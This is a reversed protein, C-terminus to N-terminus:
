RRGVRRPQALGEVAAQSSQRAEEALVEPPEADGYRAQLYAASLAGVPAQAAPAAEALTDGYASVTQGRRRALGRERANLLLLRYAQRIRHRPDALDLAEAFLERRRRRGLGDFLGRWRELLLEKSWVFEREESATSTYRPRSRRRWAAVIVVIVLAALVLAILIVGLGEPLSPPAGPTLELDPFQQTFSPPLESEEAPQAAPGRQFLRGMFSYGMYLLWVIVMGVFAIVQGIYGLLPRLRALLSAMAEPALFLSLVWGAAVIGLMALGMAILWYRSLAPRPLGRAVQYALHGAVSLLALALLGALLFVVLDEGGVAGPSTLSLLALVLIGAVFGYMLQKHQTWRARAGGFWLGLTTLLVILGAPIGQSFDVLGGLARWASAPSLSAEAVAVSGIVVLVGAGAVAWRGGRRNALARSLWAAALLVAVIAWWPYEVDSPYTLVSGLLLSLLPTLWAAYMVASVAPIVLEELWSWRSWAAGRM